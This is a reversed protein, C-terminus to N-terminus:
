NKKKQITIVQVGNGTDSFNYKESLKYAEPGNLVTSIAVCPLLHGMKLRSVDFVEVANGLNMNGHPHGLMFVPPYPYILGRMFGSINILFDNKAVYLDLKDCHPVVRHMNTRFVITDIDARAMEIENFHRPLDTAKNQLCFNYVLVNGMSLGVVSIRAKPYEQFLDYIFNNFREQTRPCALMSGFYNGKPTGWDYFMVPKGAAEALMTAQKAAEKFDVCCGHLFLIFHEDQTKKIEARFQEKFNLWGDIMQHTCNKEKSVEKNNLTGYHLLILDETNQKHFKICGNKSTTFTRDTVFYVSQARAEVCYFFMVLLLILRM